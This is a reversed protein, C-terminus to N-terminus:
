TSVEYHAQNRYQQSPKVQPLLTMSLHQAGRDSIGNNDLLLERLTTLGRSANALHEMGACTIRNFSLQLIELPLQDRNSQMSASLLALLDDTIDCNPLSLVRIRHTHQM